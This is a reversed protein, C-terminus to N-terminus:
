FIHTKYIKSKIEENEKKLLLIDRYMGDLKELIDILYDPESQSIGTDTLSIKGIQESKGKYILRPEYEGTSLSELSLSGKGMIIEGRLNGIVIKANLPEDFIFTAERTNGETNVCILEGLRRSYYINCM